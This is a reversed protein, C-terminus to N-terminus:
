WEETPWGARAAHRRLRTDPNVIRPVGVRRLMPLDSYSDTYFWSAALDVDRERAFRDAWVVKGDGACAPAIHRGTFRGGEVSLRTCLVHEIGLHRALLEAVYPTSGTLLAVLHGERRHFSLADLGKPAIEGLVEEAFFARAKELMDAELDGALDAVALGTVAEMDIISLKYRAIWAMARLAKWTSIEGRRRLFKIWQTGTNCRLLTRDMDFFAAVRMRSV